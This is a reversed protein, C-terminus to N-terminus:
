LAGAATLGTEFVELLAEPDELGVSVRFFGESIGLAARGEPTLARHSSSAPHSLTTGVDGLTPAFAIGQAAETFANAAARGGELEFSLMNGPNGRLVSQARAADPHDARGPYLVRKVGPKGTLFDSLRQATEQCQRFRMPFTMLGREALWCDFPSATLGATVAFVRIRQNVEPDRAAVWGLTVDAHGALLKTVSHIVIDAGREVPRIAAPTTFTNDVALLVGKEKCLAAIGDLDAIRLTPNSVLEILVLKTEPRFAAAFADIDTPDALSTRIGMRPLDESMMRLSRGYLQDAGLVHDGSRLLGLLVAAVSAMGSGMVTGGSMGELADIRQALVDANPHGERAYTYGSTVGTYQDDLTDPSDSAYVVAPMIPTVVASSVSPPITVPRILTKRTDM